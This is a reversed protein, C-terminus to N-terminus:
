QHSASRAGSHLAVPRSRPAATRPEADPGQRSLLARRGAAARAARHPHPPARVALQEFSLTGDRVRHWLCMLRRSLRLLEQGLRAGVGRADVLAQFDRLLHARCLLRQGLPIYNYGSWRDSGVTGSFAAGLLEKCVISGSSKAIRFVTM